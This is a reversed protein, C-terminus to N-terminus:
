NDEAFEENRRETNPTPSSDLFPLLLPLKQKIM